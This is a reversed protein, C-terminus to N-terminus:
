KGDASGHKKAAKIALPEFKEKLKAKLRDLEALMKRAKDNTPSIIIKDIM